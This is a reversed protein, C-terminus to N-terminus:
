SLKPLSLLAHDITLKLSLNATLERKATLLAHIIQAIHTPQFLPKKEQVFGSKLEDRFFFLASDLWLILEQRESPLGSTSLLRQAISGKLINTWFVSQTSKNKEDTKAPVIALQIVFCRSIITPLLLDLNSVALILLTHDPPEELSKLLAQQAELSLGGAEIIAAKTKSAFATKALQMKLSRIEAISIKEASLVFRDVPHVQAEDLLKAIKEDQASKDASVIIYSHFMIKEITDGASNL